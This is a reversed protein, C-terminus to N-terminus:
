RATSTRKSKNRIKSRGYRKKITNSRVTKRANTKLKKSIIKKPKKIKKEEKPEKEIKVREVLYHINNRAWDPIIDFYKYGGVPIKTNIEPTFNNPVSIKFAEKLEVIQEPKVKIKGNKIIIMDNNFKSLIQEKDGGYKRKFKIANEKAYESFGKFAKITISEFHHIYSNHITMPPHGAIVIRAWLCSDEYWGIKFQEDFMGVSEIAKRSIVFCFGTLKNAKTIKNPLPINDPFNDPMEGATFVPCGCWINEDKEMANIINKLWNPSPLIDNNIIAIYKSDSVKLGQNWSKAVGANKKNKILRLGINNMKCFNEVFESTGDTSANDIFIIRFPIHTNTKLYILCKKTYEIQNLAPIIIDVM